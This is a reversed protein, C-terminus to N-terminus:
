NIFYKLYLYAVPSIFILSDFRDLIGGHGPINNSSDKVNFDRKIMSEFLDGIQGFVSILISFIITQGNNLFFRIETNVSILYGTLV